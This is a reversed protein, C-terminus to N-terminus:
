SGPIFIDAQGSQFASEVNSVIDDTFDSGPAADDLEIGHSSQWRFGGAEPTWLIAATSHSIDCLQPLLSDIADIEGRSPVNALSALLRDIEIAPREAAASDPTTPTSM